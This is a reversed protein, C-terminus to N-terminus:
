YSAIYFILTNIVSNQTSILSESINSEKLFDKIDLNYKNELFASMMFFMSIPFQFNNTM